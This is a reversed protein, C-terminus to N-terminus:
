GEQQHQLELKKSFMWRFVESLEDGAILEHGRPELENYVFDAGASQLAEAMDRSGQVNVVDDQTGHLLYMPTNKLAYVKSPDSSACGIMAAAFFSQFRYLMDYSGMGGMSNGGVYLRSRDASFEEVLADTLEKLARIISSENDDALNVHYAGDYTMSDSWFINAPCQPLILIFSETKQYNLLAKKFAVDGTIQLLNDAGRLGGGHLYLFLPVSKDPSYDAPLYIRYPLTVGEKSTFSRPYLVTRLDRLTYESLGSIDYLPIGAYEGKKVPVGNTSELNTDTGRLTVMNTGGQFFLYGDTTHEPEPSTDVINVALSNNIYIRIRVGDTENFIGIKYRNYEYPQYYKEISVPGELDVTEGNSQRSVRITMDNQDELIIVYCPNTSGQGSDLAARMLIYLPEKLQLRLDMEVYKNYFVAHNQYSGLCYDPAAGGGLRLSGDAERHAYPEWVSSWHEQALYEDTLSVTEYSDIAHTQM